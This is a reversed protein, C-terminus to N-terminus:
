RFASPPNISSFYISGYGLSPPALDPSAEQTTAPSSAISESPPSNPKWAAQRYTTRMPQPTVSQLNSTPPPVNLPPRTSGSYAISGGAPGVVDSHALQPSIHYAPNYLQPAPLRMSQQVTTRGPIYAVAGYPNLPGARQANMRLESPLAGSRQAAILAESPLIATQYAPRRYHISQGVSYDNPRDNQAQTSTPGLQPNVQMNAAVQAIAAAVVVLMVAMVVMGIITDVFGCSCARLLHLSDSRM